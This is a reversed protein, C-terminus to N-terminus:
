TTAPRNGVKEMEYVRNVLKQNNMELKTKPAAESKETQIAILNDTFFPVLADLSTCFSSAVSVRREPRFATSTRSTTIDSGASISGFQLVLMGIKLLIMGVIKCNENMEIRNERRM